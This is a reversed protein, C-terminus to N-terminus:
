FREQTGNVRGITNMGGIWMCVPTGMGANEREIREKNKERTPRFREAAVNIIMILETPGALSFISILVHCDNPVIYATVKKIM